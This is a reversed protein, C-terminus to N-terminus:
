LSFKKGNYGIELCFGIGASLCGPAKKSFFHFLM